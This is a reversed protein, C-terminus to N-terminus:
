NKAAEELEEISDDYGNIENVINIWEMYEGGIHLVKKAIEIPDQLRYSKRFEESKFDPYTTSEIAMQAMFRAQDVKEGTKRRRTGGYIPVTNLKELEDIRETTIPRFRFKVVEGKKNKFRKSVYREIEEVDEAKGPMFFSLDNVVESLEVEGEIEEVANNENMM